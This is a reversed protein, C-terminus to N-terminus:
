ATARVSSPSRGSIMRWRVVQFCLICNFHNYIRSAFQDPQQSMADGPFRKPAQGGETTVQGTLRQHSVPKCRRLGGRGGIGAPWRHQPGDREGRHWRRHPRDLRSSRGSQSVGTAIIIVDAGCCDDFRGAVVRTTHTFVEADRLDQVHGEAKRRDRDILVIEAPTRSLLLAYAATSGVFGAGVIAVRPIRPRVDDRHVARTGNIVSM